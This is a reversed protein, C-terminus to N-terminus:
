CIMSIHAKQEAIHHRLRLTLRGVEKGDMIQRDMGYKADEADRNNVFEIFALGRGEGASSHQTYAGPLALTGSAHVWSSICVLYLAQHYRPSM